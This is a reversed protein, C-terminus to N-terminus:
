GGDGSAGTGGTIATVGEICFDWPVATPPSAPIQFQVLMVKTAEFAALDAKAVWSGQAAQSVLVTHQGPTTVAEFYAYDNNDQTPFAVRISTSPITTGSLVFCFGLVGNATTNYPQQPPGDNLEFAIGAGWANTATSTMGSTCMKGGVNPFASADTPPTVVTSCNVDHLDNCDSYQFWSGHINVSNSGVAILGTQDPVIPVGPCPAVAAGSAGDDSSAGGDV